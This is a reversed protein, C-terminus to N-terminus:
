PITYALAPSSSFRYRWHGGTDGRWGLGARRERRACPTFFWTRTSRLKGRASQRGGDGSDGRVETLVLRVKSRMLLPLQRATAPPTNASAFSQSVSGIGAYRRCAWGLM